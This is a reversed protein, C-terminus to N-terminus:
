SPSGSPQAGFYLPWLKNAAEVQGALGKSRIARLGNTAGVVDLYIRLSSDSLWRGGERIQEFPVGAIKQDTAFGARPSHPSWGIGTGLNAEIQKLELRYSALTYPFLFMGQPTEDRCRRLLEWLMTEGPPVLAVQARQSKTGGKAGLVIILPTDQNWDGQDEPFLLHQPLLNLLEGPRLGTRVQLMLGLGLRPKGRSAMHIAVLTAPRRTLPVTHKTKTRRSWGSLMTHAWCLKGKVPPMYFELAAVLTIFKAKTMTDPHLAKYELLADDWDEGSIPDLSEAMAWETFPRLAAQYRSLTIPKVRNVFDPDLFRSAVSPM